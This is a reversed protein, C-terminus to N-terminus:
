PSTCKHCLYVPVQKSKRWSRGYHVAFSHNIYRLIWAQHGSLASWEEGGTLSTRELMLEIIRSVNHWKIINYHAFTIRECMLAIIPAMKWYGVQKLLWSGGIKSVFKGGGVLEGWLQSDPTRVVIAVIWGRHWAIHTNKHRLARSRHGHEQGTETTLREFM